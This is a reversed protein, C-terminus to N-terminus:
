LKLTKKVMPAFEMKFKMLSELPMVVKSSSRKQDEKCCPPFKNMMEEAQTYSEFLAMTVCDTKNRICFFVNPMKCCGKSSKMESVHKNYGMVLLEMGLKNFDPFNVLKLIGEKMLRRRLKCITPVSLGIAKSLSNVTYEPHMILGYALKRETQSLERPNHSPEEQAPNDVDLEFRGKILESFDFYRYYESKDMQFHISEYCGMKIGRSSMEQDLSDQMEKFEAWGPYTSMSIAAKKSFAVLFKEPYSLAKKILEGKGKIENYADASANFDLASHSVTLLGSGLLDFRPIYMTRFYGEKKLRNKIANVTATQMGLRDGINKSTSNPWRVLGFFALKEKGTLPIRKEDIRKIKIDLKQALRELKQNLQRIDSESKKRKAIEAKLENNAKILEGTRDKVTKQLSDGRKKLADEAKKILDIDKVVSVILHVKSGKMIPAWSHLIWKTKGKSTEVRYEMSGKKGELASDLAQKVKELDDKHIIWPRTGILEKPDHGLVEKCAPSMYSIIGDPGTLMIVDNTNEVILRYKQESEWDPDRKDEKM